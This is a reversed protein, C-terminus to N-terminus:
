HITKKPEPEEASEYEDYEMSAQYEDAIKEVMDNFSTLDKKEGVNYNIYHKKSEEEIESENQSLSDEEETEFEEIPGPRLSSVSFATRVLTLVIVICVEVSVRTLMEVPM